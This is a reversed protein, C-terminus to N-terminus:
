RGTSGFGGIRSSEPVNFNFDLQSTENPSSFDILDVDLRYNFVMQAVRDGKNINYSLGSANFLLVGVEGGYDSDITGPSNIVFIGKKALGSRSRIQVDIGKNFPYNMKFGLPVLTVRNPSLEIDKVSYLDYGSSYVTAKKPLKADEHVLNFYVKM